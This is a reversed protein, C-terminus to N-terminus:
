NFMDMFEYFAEAEGGTILVKGDEVAEQPSRGKGPDPEEM